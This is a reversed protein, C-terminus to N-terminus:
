PSVGEGPMPCVGRCHRACRIPRLGMGSSVTRAISRMPAEAFRWDTHTGNKVTNRCIGVAVRASCRPAASAHRMASSRRQVVRAPGRHGFTRHLISRLRHRGFFRCRKVSRTAIARARKSNSNIFSAKRVVLVFRGRLPIRPREREESIPAVSRRLLPDTKSASIKGTTCDHAASGSRARHRM